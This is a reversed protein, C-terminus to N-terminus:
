GPCDEQGNAGAELWLGNTPLAAAPDSEPAAAPEASAQLALDIANAQTGPVLLQAASVAAAMAICLIGQVAASKIM